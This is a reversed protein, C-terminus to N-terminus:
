ATATKAEKLWDYAENIESIKENAYQIYGEPMGDQVMKDPHNEKALKRYAKKIVSLDADEDVGLVQSYKKHLSTQSPGAHQYNGQYRQEYGQQYGQQYGTRHGGSRYYNIISQLEYDNLGLGFMITKLTEKEDEVLHGDQIAMGVLLYSVATVLNFRRYKLLLETFYVASEPHEKGYNFVGEYNNLEASSINFQRQIFNRVILVEEKTVRGDSKAVMASLAMISAVAPQRGEFAPHNRIAKNLKVAKAPILFIFFIIWPFFFGITGWLLGSRGKMTMIFGIVVAIGLSFIFSLANFGVTFLSSIIEAM